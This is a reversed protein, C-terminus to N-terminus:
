LINKDFYRIDIIMNIILSFINIAMSLYHHKYYHTSLFIRSLISTGIIYVISVSGLVPTSNFKDDDDVLFFLLFIIVRPIFNFISVLLLLKLLKTFKVLSKQKYILKANAKSNKAKKEEFNNSSKARIKEICVCFIVLLNSPIFIYADYFAGKVKNESNGFTCDKDKNMEKIIKKFVERLFYCLFLLPFFIHNKNVNFTLFSMLFNNFIIFDILYLM